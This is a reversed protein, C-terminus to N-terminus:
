EITPRQARPHEQGPAKVSAPLPRNNRAFEADLRRMAMYSPRHEPFIALASRYQEIAMDIYGLKEYAYGVIGHLMPRYQPYNEAQELLDLAVHAAHDYNGLAAETYLAQVQELVEPPLDEGRVGHVYDIEAPEPVAGTLAQLPEALPMPSPEALPMAPAVVAATPANPGLRSAQTDVPATHTATWRASETAPELWLWFLVVTLGLLALGLMARM